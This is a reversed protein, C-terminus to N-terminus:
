ITVKAGIESILTAHFGLFNRKADEPGLCLGPALPQCAMASIGTHEDPRSGFLGRLESSLIANDADKIMPHALEDDLIGLGTLIVAQVRAEAVDFPTRHYGVQPQDETSKIESVFMIGRKIPRPIDGLYAEASDHHLALLAWDPRRSADLVLCAVMVAHQAVSYFKPSHGGFRCTNSLAHAIDELHVDRAWPNLPDFGRGSFTHLRSKSM